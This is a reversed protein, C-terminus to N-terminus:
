LISQVIRTADFYLSDGQQNQVFDYGYCKGLNQWSAYLLSSDLSDWDPYRNWWERLLNNVFTLVGRVLPTLTPWNLHQPLHPNGIQSGVIKAYQLLVIWLGQAINTASQGLLDNNLQYDYWNGYAEKIIKQSDSLWDTQIREFVSLTMAPASHVCAALESLLIDLYYDAIHQFSVELLETDASNERLVHDKCHGIEHALVYFCLENEDIQEPTQPSDFNLFLALAGAMFNDRFIIISSVPPGSKALITKAAAVHLENNTYNLSRDNEAQVRHITSGFEDPNTIILQYICDPAAQVVELAVSAVETIATHLELSHEDDVGQFTNQCIVNM